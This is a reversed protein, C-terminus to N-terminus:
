SQSPVPTQLSHLIPDTSFSVLLLLIHPVEQFFEIIAGEDMAFHFYSPVLVLAYDAGAREAIRTEAIVDRTCQGGCGLTITIDSRGNQVAMGRTTSVLQMKEDHTLTVAEGNTGAIVVLLVSDTEPNDFVRQNFMSGSLGSKILFTLHRRQIDWDIEQAVTDQFWTLSPVHIGPPFPQPTSIPM